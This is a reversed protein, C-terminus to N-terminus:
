ACIVGSILDGAGIVVAIADKVAKPVIKLSALFELTSKVDEWKRCFDAPKMTSKRRAAQDTKGNWSAFASELEKNQQETLETVM